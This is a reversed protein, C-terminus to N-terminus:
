HRPSAAPERLLLRAMRNAVQLVQLRIEPEVDLNSGLARLQRESLALTTLIERRSPPQLPRAYDRRVSRAGSMM